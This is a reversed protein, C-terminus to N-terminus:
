LLRTVNIIILAGAGVSRWVKLKYGEVKLRGWWRRSKNWMRCVRIGSILIIYNQM